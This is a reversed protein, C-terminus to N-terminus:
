IYLAKPVRANRLNFSPWKFREGAICKQDRSVGIVRFLIVFITLLNHVVIAGHFIQCIFNFSIQGTLFLTHANRISSMFTRELLMGVFSTKTINKFFYANM